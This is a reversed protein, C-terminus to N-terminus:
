PPRHRQQRQQRKGQRQEVLARGFGLLRAQDGAPLRPWLAALEDLPSPQSRM